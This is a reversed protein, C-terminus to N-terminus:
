ITFNLVKIPKSEEVRKKITELDRVYLANGWEYSPAEKTLERKFPNYYFLDFGNSEIKEKILSEDFGFHLGSGNLEIIIAKLRPDRLLEEAGNIVETEYGEVDIKMLLCEASEINTLMDDLRVVGVEVFDIDGDNAVKNLSNEDQNTFRLVGKAAAVGMNLSNVKDYLGNLEVNKRFKQFTGPLPEFSLTKCGSAGAGLLSFIGINSGVDILLDDPRLFHLVFSMEEFEYLGTYYNVLGASDNKGIYIKVGDVVQYIMPQQRFPKSLHWWVYRFVANFPRNKSLPHKFFLPLFM